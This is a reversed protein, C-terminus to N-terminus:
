IVEFNYNDNLSLMVHLLTAVFEPVFINQTHDVFLKLFKHWCTYLWINSWIENAIQEFSIIFM